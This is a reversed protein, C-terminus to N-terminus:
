RVYSEGRIIRGISRKCIGYETALQGWSCGGGAYRARIELAQDDTLLAKTSPRGLNALVRRGLKDMHALNEAQTCWELNSVNNNATGCDIHNVNPKKQPNPLFATAVLRHVDIVKRFGNGRRLSVRIYGGTSKSGSLIRGPIIQHPVTGGNASRTIGRVRGLSSVEYSGEWDQVPRWEEIM